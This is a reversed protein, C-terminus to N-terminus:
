KILTISGYRQGEYSRGDKFLAKKLHWVYVDPPLPKGKMTGDWAESPRGNQLQTTEWILNGWTDYIVLDFEVLGTGVAKFERVGESTNGPSLASPMFLGKFLKFNISDVKTNKCNYENVSTLSVTYLGYNLYRHWPDDEVSSKGDGFSWLYSTAGSSYNHFQITDLDNIRTYDFDSVPSPNTIILDKKIISDNCGGAGIVKLSVSYIGKGKFSYAPEEEESFGQGGFDWFYKLGYKSLNAFHVEFPDCGIASDASFDAVPNNYAHYLIASTDSCFYMNTAILSIDYDGAMSYTIAPNTDKSLRGNGFDWRYDDAGESLNTFQVDVPPFCTQLSSSKFASLPKPNVNVIHNASDTCGELNTARLIVNFKGPETFIQQGNLGISKNGNDFDWVYYEGGTTENSFSIQLPQCGDNEPISFAADPGKNIKVDRSTSTSCGNIIDKATLRVTFLGAESYVHNDNFDFGQTMDGFDWIVNAIEAVPMNVPTVFVTDGECYSIKDTVFEVNPAGMVNIETTFSDYSCTDNVFLTVKYRGPKTFTHVPHLEDTVEGDGFNWSWNLFPRNGLVGRSYNTFSVKLPSCGM